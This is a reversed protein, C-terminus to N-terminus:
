RLVTKQVKVIYFVPYAGSQGIDEPFFLGRDPGAVIYILQRRYLARLRLIEQARQVVERWVIDRGRRFLLFHRRGLQYALYYALRDRDGADSHKQPAAPRKDPAKDVVLAAVVEVARDRVIHEVSGEAAVVRHRHRQLRSLASRCGVIVGPKRGVTALELLFVAGAAVVGVELPHLRVYLIELRRVRVYVAIDIDRVRLYLERDHLPLVVIVVEIVGVCVLVHRAARDEGVVARVLVHLVVAVRDEIPVVHVVARHEVVHRLEEVLVEEVRRVDRYVREVPDIGILRERYELRDRGELIEPHTKLVVRIEHGETFLHLLLRQVVLVHLERPAVM